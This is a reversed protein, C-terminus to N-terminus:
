GRAAAAVMNETIRRWDPIGKMVGFIQTTELSGGVPMLVLDHNDAAAAMIKLLVSTQLSDRGSLLRLHAKSILYRGTKKGAFQSSFLTNLQHAVVHPVILM